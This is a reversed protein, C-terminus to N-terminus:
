APAKEPLSLPGFTPRPRFLIYCQFNETAPQPASSILKNYAMVFPAVFCHPPTTDKKNILCLTANFSESNQWCHSAYRSVKHVCHSM